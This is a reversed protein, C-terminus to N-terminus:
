DQLMVSTELLTYSHINTDKLVERIFAFDLLYWVFENNRVLNVYNKIHCIAGLFAKNFALQSKEYSNILGVM